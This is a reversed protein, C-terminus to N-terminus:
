LNDIYENEIINSSKFGFLLQKWAKTLIIIALCMCVSIFGIIGYSITYAAYYTVGDFLEFFESFSSGILTFLDLFIMLLMVSTLRAKKVKEEKNALLGLVLVIIVWLIESSFIDATFYVLFNKEKYREFVFFAVITRFIIEVLYIGIYSGLIFKEKNDIITKKM